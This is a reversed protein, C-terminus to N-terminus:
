CRRFASKSDLRATTRCPESEESVSRSNEKEQGLLEVTLPFAFISDAGVKNEGDYVFVGPMLRLRANEIKKDRCPNVFEQTSRTLLRITSENTPM